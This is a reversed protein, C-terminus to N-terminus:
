NAAIAAWATPQKRICACRQYHSACGLGPVQGPHWSCPVLKFGLRKLALMILWRRRKRRPPIILPLGMEEGQKTEECVIEELEFM